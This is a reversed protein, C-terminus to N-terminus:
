DFVTPETEAQTNGSEETTPHETESNPLEETNKIQEQLEEFTTSNSKADAYQKYFMTGAFCGIIFLVVMIIVGIIKRTM